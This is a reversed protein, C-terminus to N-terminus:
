ESSSNQLFIYVESGYLEYEYESVVLEVRCIRDLFVEAGTTV